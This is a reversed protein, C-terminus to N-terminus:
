QASRDSPADQANNGATQVDVRLVGPLEGLIHRVVSPDAFNGTRMVVRIMAGAGEGTLADPTDDAVVQGENIIIIRDCTAQVEPLIHTSLLVTKDRGLDKILARIEVIQNPDLGSTPEDLILLDPDHLLAQALGVRQRYGKSLQGIDKGLVDMLGCRECAARIRGRKIDSTVGRLDAIFHLFDIVMMDLYMPASEPLYGLLRQAAVPDEAVNIGAVLAKGATPRLYGTLMKMTTSKGAGNPGLFGVVEGRSVTFSVDRVAQTRGYDKILGRAEVLPIAGDRATETKLINMVFVELVISPCLRPLITINKLM